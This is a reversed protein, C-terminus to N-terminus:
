QQGLIRRIPSPNYGPFVWRGTSPRKRRLIVDLHRFLKGTWETTRCGNRLLNHLIIVGDWFSRAWDCYFLVLYHPQVLCGKLVRDTLRFREVASFLPIVDNKLFGFARKVNRVSDPMSTCFKQSRNLKEIIQTPQLDV